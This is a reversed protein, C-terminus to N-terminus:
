GPPPVLGRVEASSRVQGDVTMWLDFGGTREALVVRPDDGRDIPGPHEVSVLLPARVDPRAALAEEVPVWSVSNNVHGMLDFDVFRLPFPAEVLGAGPAGHSLRARVKRGAASPGYTALFAEDLRAPRGRDDLRVWLAAADIRGGADGTVRVRREAWRGGIGSCWTEVQVPERFVPFAEVRATVRRVVWPVAPLAWDGTGSSAAALDGTDEDSVDQLYRALADLRLRGGPSTDALQVRRRHAFRRGVEPVGIDLSAADDAPVPEDIVAGDHGAVIM